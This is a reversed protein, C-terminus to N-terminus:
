KEVSRRDGINTVASYSRQLLRGLGKLHNHLAREQKHDFVTPRTRYQEHANHEVRLNVLRQQEGGHSATPSTLAWGARAAARM